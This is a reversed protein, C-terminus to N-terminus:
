GVTAAKSRTQILRQATRKSAGSYHVEVGFCRSAKATEPADTSVAVRDSLTTEGGVCSSHAILRMGAFQVITNELKREAGGGKTPVIAIKM